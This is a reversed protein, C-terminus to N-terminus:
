IFGFYSILFRFEFTPFEPKFIKIQIKKTGGIAPIPEHIKTRLKMM